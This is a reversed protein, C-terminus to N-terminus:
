IVKVSECFRASQLVNSTGTVNTGFTELPDIYSARVLPQAAM